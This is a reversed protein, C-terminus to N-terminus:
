WSWHSLSLTRGDNSRSVDLSGRRPPSSALGTCGGSDWCWIQYAPQSIDATTISYIPKTSRPVGVRQVIQPPKDVCGAVCVVDRMSLRQEAAAPAVHAPLLAAFVATAMARGARGSM